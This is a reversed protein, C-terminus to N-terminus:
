YALLLLFIGLNIGHSVFCLRCSTRLKVLLAYTLYAGLLVTGASVSVVIQYIISQNDHSAIMVFLLISVYYLIGLLANQVGFVRADAADLIVFCSQEEMRCFRPVFRIDPKMIRYSVLTVYASILMGVISFATLLLQVIM